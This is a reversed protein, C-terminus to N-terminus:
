IYVIYYINYYFYLDKSTEWVGLSKNYNDLIALKLINEGVQAYVLILM